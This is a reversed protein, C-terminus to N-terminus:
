LVNVDAEPGAVKLFSASSVGAQDTGGQGPSPPILSFFGSILLFDGRSWDAKNSPFSGADTIGGRSERRNLPCIAGRIVESRLPLHWQM